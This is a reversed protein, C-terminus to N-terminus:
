AASDQRKEELGMEARSGADLLGWLGFAGLPFFISLAYLGCLVVGLVWGWFRRRRIGYVAVEPVAAFALCFATLGGYIALRAADLKEGDLAAFAVVGVACLVYLATSIHLCVITM